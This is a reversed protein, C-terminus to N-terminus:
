NVSRSYRRGLDESELGWSVIRRPSIRIIANDFDEGMARGGTDLTVADGCVEVARLRGL